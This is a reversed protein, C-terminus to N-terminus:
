GCIVSFRWLNETSHGTKALNQRLEEHPNSPQQRLILKQLHKVKHNLLSPGMDRKPILLNEVQQLHVSFM